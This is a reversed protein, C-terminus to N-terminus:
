QLLMERVSFVSRYYLVRHMGGPGQTPCSATPTIIYYGTALEAIRGNGIDMIM